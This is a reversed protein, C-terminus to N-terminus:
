AQFFSPSLLVLMASGSLVFFGLRFIGFIGISRLKKRAPSPQQQVESSLEVVVGSTQQSEQTQSQTDSASPTPTAVDHEPLHATQRDILKGKFVVSMVASHVNTYNIPTLTTLGEIKSTWESAWASYSRPKLAMDWRGFATMLKDTEASVIRFLSLVQKVDDSIFDAFEGGFEPLFLAKLCEITYSARLCGFMEAQDKSTFAQDVPASPFGGQQVTFEIIEASLDILELKIPFNASVYEFVTQIELTPKGAKEAKLQEKVAKDRWERVCDDVSSFLSGAAPHFNVRKGLANKSLFTVLDDRYQQVSHAIDDETVPISGSKMLSRSTSTDCGTAKALAKGLAERVDDQETGGTANEKGRLSVSSVISVKALKKSLHARLKSWATFKTSELTVEGAFVFEFVVSWM